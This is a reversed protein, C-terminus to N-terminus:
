HKRKDLAFSIRLGIVWNVLNNSEKDMPLALYLNPTWKGIKVGSELNFQFMTNQAIGNSLRDDIYIIGSVGGGFLIKHQEYRFNFGFPALLESSSNRRVNIAVIAGIYLKYKFFPSFHHIFNTRFNVTSYGDIMSAYRYFDSANAVTALHYNISKILPIRIGFDITVPTEPNYLVIGIYPNGFSQDKKNSIYYSSSEYHAYPIGLFFLTNHVLPYRLSFYTISTLGIFYKGTFDPHYFELSAQPETSWAQLMSQAKTLSPTMLIIFLMFAMIWVWLRSRFCEGM